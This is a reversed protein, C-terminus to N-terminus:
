RMTAEAGINAPIETPAERDKEPKSLGGSNNGRSHGDDYYNSEGDVDHAASRGLADDRFSESATQAHHFGDTDDPEYSRCRGPEDDEDFFRPPEQFGDTVKENWTHAFRTLFECTQEKGVIIVKNRRGSLRSPSPTTALKAAQIQMIDQALRVAEAQRQEIEQNRRRLDEFTDM